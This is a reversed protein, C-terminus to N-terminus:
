LWPPRIGLSQLKAEMEERELNKKIPEGRPPLIGYEAALAWAGDTDGAQLKAIIDVEQKSLELGGFDYDKFAQWVLPCWRSVIEEGIATAYKRIELQAHADM